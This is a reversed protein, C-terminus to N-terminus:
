RRRIKKAKDSFWIDAFELGNNIKELAQSVQRARAEQQEPTM